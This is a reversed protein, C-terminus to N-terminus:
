LPLFELVATYSSRRDPEGEAGEQLFSAELYYMGPNAAELVLQGDEDTVLAQIGADDRYRTGGEVFEVELGSAPEGDILFQVSAPEGAVIDNPHTLAIMELGSNVPQLATDSPAGLTVFTETRSSNHSLRVDTAGEPVDGMDGRFRHREGNLEYFGMMGESVLALRYTGQSELPLDFASRYAGSGIIAPEVRQGDPGTVVLSDLPMPRHDFVFLENSAAADVTITESDGALVTSSPLLWRRHANAESPLLTTLGLALSIAFLSTKAFM